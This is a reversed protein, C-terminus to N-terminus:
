IRTAFYEQEMELLTKIVQRSLDRSGRLGSEASVPTVLKVSISIREGRMPFKSKAMQHEGRMYVCLVKARPVRQLLEGVGYGFDHANVRGSESRTGEPFIMICQGKELLYEIKRMAIKIADSEARSPLLICKGLYCMIQFFLSKRVNVQKPLNWAWYSPQILYTWPSALAYQIVASDIYTLHNPCIILPVNVNKLIERFQQRLRKGDKLRLRFYFFGIVWILFYSFLLFFYDIFLQLWLSWRNFGMQLM